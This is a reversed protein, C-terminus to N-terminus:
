SAQTNLMPRQYLSAQANVQGKICKSIDLKSNIFSNLDLYSIYCPADYKDGQSMQASGLMFYQSGINVLNDDYSAIQMSSLCVTAGQPPTYSFNQIMGAAALGPLRGSFYRGSVSPSDFKDQAVSKVIDWDRGSAVPRSTLLAMSDDSRVEVGIPLCSLAKVISDREEGSLCAYWQSFVSSAKDKIIALENDGLIATVWPKELWKSFQRSRESPGIFNGNLILMDGNPNFELESLMSALTSFNGFLDPVVLIKTFSSCELEIVRM